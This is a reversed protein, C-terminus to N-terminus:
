LRAIMAYSLLGCVLAAAAFGVSTRVLMKTSEQRDHCDACSQCLGARRSFDNTARIIRHMGSNRM